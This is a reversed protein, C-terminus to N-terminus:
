QLYKTLFEGLETYVQTSEPINPFLLYGAHSMGEYVNLEAIGEALKIKRHTRVVDSLLLDRTGTVLYTPPFSTFDGYVPSILPNKLDYEGGYLKAADKMWGDYSVLIHDIGENTYQSDGTKSLDSWPTGAFVAAPLDLNLEKFKHISALSLGGGASTGGLAMKIGSYKNLLHKYVKVVDDIAAPFPHNPPMRYDISIVPINATAAIIIAEPISADGGGLVYAGAHLHIFLHNEHKQPISTPTIYQVPVDGVKDKEISVLFQEKLQDLGKITNADIGKIFNEWSEKGQIKFEKTQMVDPAPIAALIHQLEKSAAVPTSLRKELISWSNNHAGITVESAISDNPSPTKNDLEQNKCALISMSLIILLFPYM